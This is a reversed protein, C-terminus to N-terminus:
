LIVTTLFIQLSLILGIIIVAFNIGLWWRRMSIWEVNDIEKEESVQKENFFSYLLSRYKYANNIHKQLKHSHRLLFGVGFIGIFILFVSLYLDNKAFPNKHTIIGIIAGSIAIITTTVTSRQLEYHRIQSLQEQYMKFYFDFHNIEKNDM